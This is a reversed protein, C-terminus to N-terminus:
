LGAKKMKSSIELIDVNGGCLVIGVHKADNYMTQFQSSLAVAVGIVPL